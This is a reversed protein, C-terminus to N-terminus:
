AVQKTVHNKNPDPKLTQSTEAKYRRRGIGLAVLGIAFLIFPTPETVQAIPFLEHAFIAGPLLVLVISLFYSRANM